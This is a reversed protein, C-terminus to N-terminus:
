GTLCGKMSRASTLAPPPVIAQISSVPFRLTPGSLAPASGPGAAYSLPPVCAVTVSAFMTAPLILGDLRNPPCSLSRLCRATLAMPFSLWLSPVEISLVESRIRLNTLLLMLLASLSTLTSRPRSGLSYERTANPPAPGRCAQSKASSSSILLIIMGMCGPRNEANPRSM